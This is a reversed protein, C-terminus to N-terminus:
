FSSRTITIGMRLANGYRDTQPVDETVTFLRNGNDTHLQVYYEEHPRSSRSLYVPIDTTTGPSLLPSVGVITNAANYVIIFSHANLIAEQVIIRAGASQPNITIPLKETNYANMKPSMSEETKISLTDNAGGMEGGAVDNADMAFPTNSSEAEFSKATSEGSTNATDTDPTDMSPTVMEESSPVIEERTEDMPLYHTREPFIMFVLLAVVGLPVLRFFWQEAKFFPSPVSHTHGSLLRTRLGDRFAVDITVNPKESLMHSVLVRLDAGHEGLTPDLAILESVLSTIRTDEM